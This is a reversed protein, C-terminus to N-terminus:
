GELRDARIVQGASPQSDKGERALLGAARGAKTGGGLKESGQFVM